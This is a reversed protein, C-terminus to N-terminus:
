ETTKTTACTSITCRYCWLCSFRTACSFVNTRTTIIAKSCGFFYIYHAHIAVFLKYNSFLRFPLLRFIAVRKINHPHPPYDSRTPPVICKNKCDHKEYLTYSIYLCVLLKKSGGFYIESMAATDGSGSSLGSCNM